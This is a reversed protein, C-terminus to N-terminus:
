VLIVLLMLLLSPRRPGAESLFCIHPAYSIDDPMKNSVLMTRDPRDSFISGVCVTTVYRDARVKNDVLCSVVAPTEKGASQKPARLCIRDLTLQQIQSPRAQVPVWILPWSEPLYKIFCVKSQPNRAGLLRKLVPLPKSQRYRVVGVFEYDAAMQIAAM